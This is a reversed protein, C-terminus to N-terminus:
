VGHGAYCEACQHLNDHCLLFCLVAYIRCLAQCALYRTLRPMGVV